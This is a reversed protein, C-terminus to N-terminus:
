RYPTPRSPVSISPEAVPMPIPIQVSPARHVAARFQEAMGASEVAAMPVPLAAGAAHRTMDVQMAAPSVSTVPMGAIKVEHAPVPRPSHLGVATPPQANTMAAAGSDPAAVAASSSSDGAMSSPSIFAPVGSMAFPNAAATGESNSHSSSFDSATAGAATASENAAQSVELPKAVEVVLSNDSAYAGTRPREAFYYWYFCFSLSTLASAILLSVKFRTFM